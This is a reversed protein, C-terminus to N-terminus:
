PEAQTLISDTTFGLYIVQGISYCTDESPDPFPIDSSFCFPDFYWNPEVPHPYVAFVGHDGIGLLNTNPPAPITKMIEVIPGGQPNSSYILSGNDNNYISGLIIGDYYIFTEPSLSTATYFLVNGDGAEQIMTVADVLGEEYAVTNIDRTGKERSSIKLPRLQMSKEIRENFRRFEMEGFLDILRTYAGKIVRDREAEIEKLEAPPKPLPAGRELKGGLIGARAENVLQKIRADHVAVARLCENAMQNLQSMQHDNLLAINRYHLRYRSGDEGKREAALANQTLLSIHRFVFYYRLHEPMKDSPNQAVVVASFCLVSIAFLIFRQYM